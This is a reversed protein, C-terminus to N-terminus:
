SHIIQFGMKLEKLFYTLNINHFDDDRKNLVKLGLNIKAFSKIRHNM